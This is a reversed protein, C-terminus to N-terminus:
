STPRPVLVVRVTRVLGLDEALHREIPLWVTNGATIVQGGPAIEIGIMINPGPTIEGAVKAPIGREPAVIEDSLEDASM